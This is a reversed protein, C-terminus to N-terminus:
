PRTAEEEVGEVHRDWSNQLDEFDEVLADIEEAADNLELELWFFNVDPHAEKLKKLETWVEATM